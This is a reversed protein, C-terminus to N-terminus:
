VDRRILMTVCRTKINMGVQDFFIGSLTYIPILIYIYVQYPIIM